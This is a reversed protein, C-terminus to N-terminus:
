LFALILVPTAFAAKKLFRLVITRRFRRTERLSKTPRRRHYHGFIPVDDADFDIRDGLQESLGLSYLLRGLLSRSSRQSLSTPPENLDHEFPASLDELAYSQEDDSYFRAMGLSAWM